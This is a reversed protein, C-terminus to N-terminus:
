KNDCLGEILRRLDEVGYPKPLAGAFGENRAQLHSGGDFYGSSVVAKVAPNIQRLRGLTERGGLGEPVVLDMIVLDFEEGAEKARRYLEIAEEGNRAFLADYSLHNLIAGAVARDLEEDDMVLVRGKRLDPASVSGGQRAEEPEPCPLFVHFSTGKGVESDVTIRGGHRAVVAHCMALGLGLGRRDSREKTTFYPDFVRKLDDEPIGRGTDTVTIVVCRAKEGGPDHPCSSPENAASVTVTGAGGMAEAANSVIEHVVQRLQEENAWVQRLGPGIVTRGVTARGKLDLNVWGPLVRALDVRSRVVAGPSALAALQAVLDKAQFASREAESLYHRVGPLTEAKRSALYLNGVIDNLLQSFDHSFGQVLLGLGAGGGSRCTERGEGAESPIPPLCKVPESPEHAPRRDAQQRRKMPTEFLNSLSAVFPNLNESAIPHHTRV